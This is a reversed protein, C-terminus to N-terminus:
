FKIRRKWFAYLVMSTALVSLVMYVPNSLNGVEEPNMGSGSKAVGYYVLVTVGNNLLHLLIPYWLSQTWLALYGLVM